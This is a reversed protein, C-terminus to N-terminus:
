NTNNKAYETKPLFNEDFIKQVQSDLFGRVSIESPIFNPVQEAIARGSIKEWKKWKRFYWGSDVEEYDKTKENWKKSVGFCVPFFDKIAGVRISIEEKGVTLITKEIIGTKKYNPKAWQPKFRAQTM